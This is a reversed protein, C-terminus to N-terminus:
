LPKLAATGVAAVAAPPAIGPARVHGWRLADWTACDFIFLPKRGEAPNVYILENMQSHNVFGRADRQPVLEWIFTFERVAHHARM